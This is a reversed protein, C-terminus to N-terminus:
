SSPFKSLTCVDVLALHYGKLMTTMIYVFNKCSGRDVITFIRNFYEQM